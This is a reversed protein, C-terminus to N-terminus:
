FFEFREALVRASLKLYRGDLEADGATVIAVTVLTDDNRSVTRDDTRGGVDWLKGRPHAALETKEQRSTVM